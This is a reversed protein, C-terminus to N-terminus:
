TPPPRSRTSATGATVTSCGRPNREGVIGEIALLRLKTTVGGAASFGGLKGGAEVVRHCPVVIAFPNDGLRPGVARASGPSRGHRRGRRLVPHSRAPHVTGRRLGAPPLTARRAHGPHHALPGRRSRAVGRRHRRHGGGGARAPASETVTPYRRSMRARTREDGGEPLQVGVVGEDSWAIGCRGIATDFLTYGSAHKGM